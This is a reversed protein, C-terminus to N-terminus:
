NPAGFGKVCRALRRWDELGLDQPRCAPDIGARTCISAAEASSYHLGAALSNHLQKRRNAFAMRALRFVDHVDPGAPRIDSVSLIASDVDPVPWFSRRPVTAVVRPKGFYQVTVSLLSMDGPPAAIREAVEKQLMVVIKNPQTSAELVSSFFHSSVAYPLNAVISFPSTAREDAHERYWRFFDAHVIRLRAQSPFQRHLAAVLREDIEYATVTAGAALLRETLVGFGPGVELVRDGPHLKAAGVMADLPTSDICFNQSFKKSPRVGFTRCLGQVVGLDTLSRRGSQRQHVSRSFAM